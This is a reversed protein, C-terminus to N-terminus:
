HTHYRSVFIKFPGLIWVVMMLFQDEPNLTPSWPNEQSVERKRLWYWVEDIEVMMVPVNLWKSKMPLIWIDWRLYLGFQHLESWSVFGTHIFHTSDRQKFIEFCTKKEARDFRCATEFSHWGIFFRVMAWSWQHKIKSSVNLQWSLNAQLTPYTRIIQLTNQTLSDYAQSLKSSRDSFFHKGNIKKLIPWVNKKWFIEKQGRQCKKLIKIM